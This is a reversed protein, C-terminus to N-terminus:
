FNIAPSWGDGYLGINNFYANPGWLSPFLELPISSVFGGAVLVDVTANLCNNGKNLTSIDYGFGVAQFGRSSFGTILDIMEEYKFCPLIKTGSVKYRNYGYNNKMHTTMENQSNALGYWGGNYQGKAIIPTGANNEVGGMFFQTNTVNNQSNLTEIKWGVGEHGFYVERGQPGVPAGNSRNFIYATVRINPSGTTFTSHLTQWPGFSNSSCMARVRWKYKTCPKLGNPTATVSNNGFSMGGFWKGSAENTGIKILEMSDEIGEYQYGIANTVQSWKLTMGVSPKLSFANTLDQNQTALLGTPPPLVCGPTTFESDDSWPGYSTDSCKYRVRWKYTTSAAFGGTGSGSSVPNRNGQNLGNTGMNNTESYALEKKAYQLQSPTTGSGAFGPTSWSFIYAYTPNGNYTSNQASFSSALLITPKPVSCAKYFVITCRISGTYVCSVTNCPHTRYTHKLLTIANFPNNFEDRHKPTAQWGPHNDIYAIEYGANKTLLGGNIKTYIQGNLFGATGSPTETIVGGMGSPPWTRVEYRPPNSGPVILQLPYKYTFIDVLNPGSAMAEAKCGIEGSTLIMSDGGGEYQGYCNRLQVRDFNNNNALAGLQQQLNFAGVYKIKTAGIGGANLDFADLKYDIEVRDPFDRIPNFSVSGWISTSYSPDNLCQANSIVTFSVICLFVFLIKKM